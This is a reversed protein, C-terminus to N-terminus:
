PIGSGRIGEGVCRENYYVRASREDERWIVCFSLCDKGLAISINTGTRWRIRSPM